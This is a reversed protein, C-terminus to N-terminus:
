PNSGGPLFWTEAIAQHLQGLDIQLQDIFQHLAVADFKHVPTQKIKDMMSQLLKRVNQHHPLTLLSSEIEGLTHMVARPFEGNQLLFTLVDGARVRVQMTRRYMQYATLSRLMSVWLLTEFSRITEARASLLSASRVDIIRTTMDARELNRGIRLFYYGQDHIMTGALMGTITQTTLVIQKLYDHRGRKSLGEVLRESASLHHKNILEWAERPIVDRIARANERAASISSIISSPNRTSGIMFQVVAKEHYELGQAEFLDRVGAIAILPEWAPLVDQPLDLHLNVNVALLRATDEARELYRAMWYIHEAVRSLM